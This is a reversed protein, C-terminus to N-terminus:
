VIKWTLKQWEFNDRNQGVHQSNWKCWGKKEM